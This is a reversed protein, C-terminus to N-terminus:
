IQCNMAGFIHTKSSIRLGDVQKHSGWLLRSHFLNMEEFAKLFKRNSIVNFLLAKVLKKEVPLELMESCLKSEISVLPMLM